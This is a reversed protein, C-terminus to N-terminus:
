DLNIWMQYFSMKEEWFLILDPLESFPSGSCPSSPFDYNAAKTEKKAKDRQPPTDQVSTTHINNNKIEGAKNIKKVTSLVDM